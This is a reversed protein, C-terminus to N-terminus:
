RTVEGTSPFRRGMRKAVAQGLKWAVWGGLAGVLLRVLLLIGLIWLAASPAIGLIQSGEQLMKVYVQAIQQGWLLRMMIFKHPLNWGVALAGALSFTWVRPESVTWLAAEMLLGEMVIAIFPGLRAGAPSLLKLLATVLAIFFVAGRHPVFHRGTLAIVVGIGGLVVGVFFTNTQSPFIVHLYSGLSVEVAAWLASFLGITVWHRVSYSSM